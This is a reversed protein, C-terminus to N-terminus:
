GPGVTHFVDVVWWEIYWAVPNHHGLLLLPAYPWIVLYFADEDTWERLWFGLGIAPGSSLVYLVVVVTTRLAWRNLAASWGSAIEDM